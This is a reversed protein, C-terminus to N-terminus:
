YFFKVYNWKIKGGRNSFGLRLVELIVSILIGIDYKKTKYSRYYKWYKPDTQICKVLANLLKDYDKM